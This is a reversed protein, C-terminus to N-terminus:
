LNRLVTTLDTLSESVDMAPTPHNLLQMHPRPDVLARLESHLALADRDLKERMDENRSKTASLHKKKFAQKAATAQKKAPKKTPKSRKDQAM